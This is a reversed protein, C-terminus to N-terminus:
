CWGSGTPPPADVPRERNLTLRVKRAGYVGYNAFHVTAIRPKLEASEESTVGPWRGGGVEAQRCWKRITEPTRGM